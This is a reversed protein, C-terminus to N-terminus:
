VSRALSLNCSPWGGRRNPNAFVTRSISLANEVMRDAARMPCDEGRRTRAWRALRRSRVEQPRIMGIVSAVIRSSDGIFRLAPCPEAGSPPLFIELKGAPRIQEALRQ